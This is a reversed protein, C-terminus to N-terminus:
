RRRRLVRYSWRLFRMILRFPRKLHWLLIDFSRTEEGLAKRLRSSSIFVNRKLFPIFEAPKKAMINRFRLLGDYDNSYDKTHFLAVYHALIQAGEGGTHQILMPDEGAQVRRLLALIEEVDRRDLENEVMSFAGNLFSGWQEESWRLDQLDCLLRLPAYGHKRPGHQILGHVLLHAACFELSPLHSLAGLGPAKLLLGAAELHQFGFEKRNESKFGKIFTHIELIRGHRDRLPSLHHNGPGRVVGPLADVWGRELLAHMLETAREAPVLIDLDGMPRQGPNLIGLMELAVGKLCVLPIAMTEAVAGVHQALQLLGAVQLATAEHWEVFVEVTEAGLEARLIESPTRAAVRAPLDMEAGLALLRQENPAFDLEIGPPGLARIFFWRFEPSIEAATPRFSFPKGVPKVIASRNKVLQV